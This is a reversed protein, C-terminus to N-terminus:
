CARSASRRCRCRPPRPSTSTTTASSRSTTPCGCARAAVLGAAGRARAPRQRLLGRRAAARGPLRSSSSVPRAARRGRTSRRRDLVVRWTPAPRTRRPEGRVGGAPGRVQPHRAARRRLRHAPPGARAPPAGALRGGAVDDVAVSCSADRRGDRDVLVVPMGREACDRSGTSTARRGAHDARRPGAAREFLTSTAGSAAGPGRRQQVAARGSRARRAPPRRAAPWTPSSRTASTSCWWASRAAAAPGCSAPRARQPRLRARSRPQVRAVTAPAVTEPRNLVNSVTGVSVRARQAVEKINTTSM